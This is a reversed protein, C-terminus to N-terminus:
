IDTAVCESDDAFFPEPVPVPPALYSGPPSFDAGFGQPEYVQPPSPPPPPPGRPRDIRVDPELSVDAELGVGFQASGFADTPVNSRSPIPPPLVSMSAPPPQLAFSSEAAPPLFSMDYDLGPNGAATATASAGIDVPMEAIPEPALQTPPMHVQASVQPPRVLQGGFPGAYAAGPPHLRPQPKPPPAGHTFHMEHMSFPEAPPPPEPVALQLNLEVDASPPRDPPTLFLDGNADAAGPHQQRPTGDPLFTEGGAAEGNLGGSLGDNLEGHFSHSVSEAKDHDGYLREYARLRVCAISLLM